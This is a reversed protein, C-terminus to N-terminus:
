GCVNFRGKLTKKKAKFAGKVVPKLTVVARVQHVSGRPMSATSFAQRFAAKKDNKKVKDVSFSVISIKARQRRPALKKKRKSTVRLTVKEPPQVCATPAFFSIEQDAVSTTATPQDETLSPQPELSTVTINGGPSNSDFVAFGQGDPATAVQTHFLDDVQAGSLVISLFEWNVGDPSQRVRFENPNVGNEIWAATFRGSSDTNLDAQIPDDTSLPVGASFMSGDFKRAHLQGPSGTRYLMALGASGSALHVDNGAPNISSPGVWTTTDHPDGAGNQRHFSTNDGDASVKLPAGGLLALSSSTPVSFGPNLMAQATAPPGTLPMRQYRGGTDVGSVAEGPGFVAAETDLNGIQTPGAFTAGNDTSTYAFTADPSCCRHTTIVVRGPAPLFVYTSRGSAEAPPTLSQDVACTTQGRPIQCYRVKEDPLDVVIHATGGADVAVDPFQGSGLQFSTAASAGPAAVLLALASLAVILKTM